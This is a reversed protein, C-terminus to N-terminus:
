LRMEEDKLSRRETQITTHQIAFRERLTRNIAELAAQADAADRLVVHASLSVLGSTITWVHLDHVDAVGDIAELATEIEPVNISSPAGELLINVAERMLAWTRPFIFLSLFVSAIPDAYYWGTLAMIIAAVIVGVSGLTDSVVELFAGRANLSDAAASHLIFASALNVILGVVAVVLMPGSTIEPPSQFRQIAEYLIVFGMAFLVGGNVLAALVELRTYGFSRQPTAPKSAMWVAFLALALGGVDTLMHGADALLSLSHTLLGGFVEVILYLITLGLVIQMARRHAGTASQVTEM